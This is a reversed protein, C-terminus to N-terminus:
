QLLKIIANSGNEAALHLVNNGKNCTKYIDAGKEFHLYVFLAVHNKRAAHLLPSLGNADFLEVDIDDYNLMTAAARLEKSMVAVALPTAGRVDQLNVDGGFVEVIARIAAVRGQFAAYHLITMKSEKEIVTDTKIKETKLLALLPLFRGSEV